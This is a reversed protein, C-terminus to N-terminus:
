KVHACIAAAGSNDGSCRCGWGTGEDIPYSREVDDNGCSCGGSLVKKGASCHVEVTDGASYDDVIEYGIDIAGGFRVDGGDNNIFLTSTQGNNRAMIENGDIAVNAGAEPGVIIVGGGSPAVDNPSEASVAYGAGNTKAHVASAESSAQNIEFDGAPGGGVTYGSLAAGDGTTSASVAALTNHENTIRFHGCRGTGEQQAYLTPEPNNSLSTYFSGARGHGDHRGDVAPGSGWSLGAVGAGSGSTFGFLADSDSAVNSIAFHGARGTGQQNVTVVADSNSASTNAFTAASGASAVQIVAIADQTEYNTITSPPKLTDARAAHLAQPTATIRQRPSLTVYNGSHPPDEVAIQIWFESSDFSISPFDVEVSFLGDTVTVPLAGTTSYYIGGSPANWLSFTMAIDGNFPAGDRQLQGQYTFIGAGASLVSPGLLTLAATFLFTCVHM